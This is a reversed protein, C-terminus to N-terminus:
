PRGGNTRKPAYGRGDVLGSKHLMPLTTDGGSHAKSNGHFRIGLRKARALAGEESGTWGVAQAAETVSGGRAAIKRVAAVQESTWEDPRHALARAMKLRKDNIIPM